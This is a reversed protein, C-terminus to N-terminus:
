ISISFFIISDEVNENERKKTKNKPRGIFARKWCGNMGGFLPGKMILQGNIVIM